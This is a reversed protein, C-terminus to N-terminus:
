GVQPYKQDMEKNRFAMNDCMFKELNFMQHHQCCKTYVANSAVIWCIFALGVVELKM